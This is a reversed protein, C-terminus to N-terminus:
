HPGILLFLASTIIVFFAVSLFVMGSRAYRSSQDEENGQSKYFRQEATPREAAAAMSGIPHVRSYRSSGLAGRSFLYMNLRTGVVILVVPTGLFILLLVLQAM